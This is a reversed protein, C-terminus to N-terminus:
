DGKIMDRLFDGLEKQVGAPLLKVLASLILFGIVALAVVLFLSVM